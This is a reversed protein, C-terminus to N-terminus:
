VVRRFTSLPRTYHLPLRTGMAANVKGSCTTRYCWQLHLAVTRRRRIVGRWRLHSVHFALSTNINWEGSHFVTGLPLNWLCFVGVIWLCSFVLAVAGNAGPKPAPLAGVSTPIAVMMKPGGQIIILWWRANWERVSGAMKKEVRSRAKREFKLRYKM